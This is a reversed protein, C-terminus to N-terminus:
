AADRISPADQGGSGTGGPRGGGPVRTGTRFTGDIYDPVRLTALPDQAGTRHRRARRAQRAWRARLGSRAEARMDQIRLEALVRILEPHM